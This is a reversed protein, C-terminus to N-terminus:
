DTKPNLRAMAFNLVAAFSVWALYPALLWAALADLAAFAQISLAIFVWLALIEKFAYWLEEMGFFIYSWLANLVLQTMFFLLASSRGSTFDPLAWIRYLALGMLTYLIIWV